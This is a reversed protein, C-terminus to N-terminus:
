KNIYQSFIISANQGGFGVSNSMVHTISKDNITNLPIKLNISPDLTTLGAVPPIQQNHIKLISFIAESAGSAALCHGTTGKTSTVYTDSGFISTLVQSEIQDNLPTSTGHANICDILEPTLSADKLAATIAEHLGSGDHSPSTVHHSDNYSGYGAIRAYVPANRKLAHEESELVLIAAGESMVFGDRNIDFPRSATKPDQNKSLAGIRAFASIIMPTLPAESAGALVVSCKGSEIMNKAIGIADTGSACATGVTYTPGTIGLEIAINGTVMSAMTSLLYASGVTALGEKLARVTFRELSSIGGLSNGLVIGIHSNEENKHLNLGSDRVAEQAAYLAYHIFPDTRWILSKNIHEEPNFDVIPCCLNVGTDKLREDYATTFCKKTLSEWCKDPTLGASSIIGIGSVVVNNKM